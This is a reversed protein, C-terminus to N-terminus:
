NPNVSTLLHIQQLGAFSMDLDDTQVLICDVSTHAHFRSVDDDVIGAHSSLGFLEVAAVLVDGVPQFDPLDSARRRLGACLM